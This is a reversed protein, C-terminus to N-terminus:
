TATPRCRKGLHPKTCTKFAYIHIMNIKHVSNLYSKGEQYLNTCLSAHDHMTFIQHWPSPTKATFEPTVVETKSYFHAIQYKVM